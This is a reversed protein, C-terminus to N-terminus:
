SSAITELVNASLPPAPAIPRARACGRYGRPRWGALLSANSRHRGSSPRARVRCSNTAPPARPHAPRASGNCRAPRADRARRLASTPEGPRRRDAKRRRRPARSRAVGAHAVARMRSPSSRVSAACSAEIAAVLRSRTESAQGRMSIGCASSPEPKTAVRLPRQCRVALVHDDRLHRPRAGCPWSSNRQKPERGSASSASTTRAIRSSRRSRM